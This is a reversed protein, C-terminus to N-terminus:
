RSPNAWRAPPASSLARSPVDKEGVSMKRPSPTSSMESM